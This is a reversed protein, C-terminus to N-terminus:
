ALCRAIWFAAESLANYTGKTHLLQVYADPHQLMWRESAQCWLKWKGSQWSREEFNYTWKIGHVVACGATEEWFDGRVPEVEGIGMSVWMERLRASTRKFDYERVKYWKLLKTAESKASRETEKYGITEHGECSVRYGWVSSGNVVDLEVIAVVDGLRREWRDRPDGADVVLKWISAM